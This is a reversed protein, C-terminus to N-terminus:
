EKEKKKGESQIIEISRNELKSTREEAQEFNEQAGRIFKLIETM